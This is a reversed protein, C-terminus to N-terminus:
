WTISFSFYVDAWFGEAIWTAVLNTAVCVEEPGHRHGRHHHFNRFVYHHQSRPRHYTYVFALPSVFLVIYTLHKSSDCVYM